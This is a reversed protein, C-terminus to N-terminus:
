DIWDLLKRSPDKDKKGNIKVRVRQVAEDAPSPTREEPQEFKGYDMYGSALVDEKEPAIETLVPTGADPEDSAPPLGTEPARHAIRIAPSETVPSEQVPFLPPPAADLPSGAPVMDPTGSSQKVSRHLLFDVYDEVSRRQEPSLRELMNELSDM